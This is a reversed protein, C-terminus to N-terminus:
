KCEGNLIEDLYAIAGRVRGIIVRRAIADLQNLREQRDPCNCPRGLWSEVREHTIGLIDLAQKVKDGLM